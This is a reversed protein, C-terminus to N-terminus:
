PRRLRSVDLLLGILVLGGQTAPGGMGARVNLAPVRLATLLVLAMLTFLIAWWAWREGRRYPGLVVFLYLTAFAAAYAASTGRVARLAAELGPRGEAVTTVAVGGIAYSRGSYALGASLLSFAFTAVGVVTLVIWSAKRM